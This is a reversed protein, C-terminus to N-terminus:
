SLRQFFPRGQRLQLLRRQDKNGRCRDVRVQLVIEQWIDTGEVATANPKLVAREKEKDAEEEEEEPPTKKSKPATEPSTDPNDVITVPTTPQTLTSTCQPCNRAYHGDGGCRFCNVPKDTM